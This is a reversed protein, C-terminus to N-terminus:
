LRFSWGMSVAPENFLVEPKQEKRELIRLSDVGDRTGFRSFALYGDYAFVGATLTLSTYYIAQSTRFNRSANGDNLGSFTGNLKGADNRAKSYAVVTVAVLGIKLFRSLRDERNIKLPDSYLVYKSSRNFMYVSEFAALMPSANRVREFYDKPIVRKEEGSELFRGQRTSRIYPREQGTSDLYPRMDIATYSDNEYLYIFSDPSAM